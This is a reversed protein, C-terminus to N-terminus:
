FLRHIQQGELRHRLLYEVALQPEVHQRRIPGLRRFRESRELLSDLPVQSSQQGFRTGPRHRGQPQNLRGDKVPITHGDPHFELLVGTDLDKAVDKLVAIHIHASIVLGRGFASPSSVMQTGANPLAVTLYWSVSRRGSAIERSNM